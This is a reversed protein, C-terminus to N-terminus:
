CACVQKQLVSCLSASCALGSHTKGQRGRGRWRRLQRLPRLTLHWSQLSLAADAGLPLSATRALPARRPSMGPLPDRQAANSRGWTGAAKICGGGVGAGRECGVGGCGLRRAHARVLLAAIAPGVRRAGGLFARRQLKARLPHLIAALHTPSLPAPPTAHAPVWHTCPIPSQTCQMLEDRAETAAMTALLGRSLGGGCGDSAAM